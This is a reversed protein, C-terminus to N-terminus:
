RLRMRLSSFISTVNAISEESDLSADQLTLKDEGCLIDVEGAKLYTEVGGVTTRAIHVPSRAGNGGHAIRSDVNEAVRAVAM